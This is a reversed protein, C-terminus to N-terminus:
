QYAKRFHNPSLGTQRKFTTSFHSPNPFGSQKGIEEISLASNQLLKKAYTIRVNELFTIPTIQTIRKFTRHLHYPSGHCDEAIIQLTLAKAFNDEIYAEINEIWEADPLTAGGSKCRKCARYGHSIAEEVSKFILINEKKPLRSKCSPYCFIKTSTVGYFFEGDATKDNMSIALWRKKTLYYDAM